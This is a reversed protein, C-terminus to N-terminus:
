GYADNKEKKLRFLRNKYLVLKKFVKKTIENDRLASDDLEDDQNSPTQNKM